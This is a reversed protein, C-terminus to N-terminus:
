GEFNYGERADMQELRQLYRYIVPKRIEYSLTALEEFNIEIENTLQIAFGLIGPIGYFCHSKAIMGDSDDIVGDIYETVVRLTKFWSQHGAVINIEGEQLPYTAEIKSIM